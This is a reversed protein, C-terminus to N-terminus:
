SVPAVVPRAPGAFSPLKLARLTFKGSVAAKAAEVQLPAPLSSGEDSQAAAPLGPVLKIGEGKFELSGDENMGLFTVTVQLSTGPEMMAGYKVARVRSLVLPPGQFETVSHAPRVLERAAHVMAEVMLVGPLVPFGPFHDLLYEEAMSILKLTVISAGVPPGQGNASDVPTRELVRDILCFHM